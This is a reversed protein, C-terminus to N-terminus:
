KNDWINKPDGYAYPTNGGWAEKASLSEAHGDCFLLNVQPDHVFPNMIRYTDSGSSYMTNNTYPRPYGLQWHGHSKRTFSQLPASGANQNIETNDGALVTGSPMPVYSGMVEGDIAAFIGYCWSGDSSNSPCKTLSTDNYYTKLKAWQTRADGVNPNVAGDWGQVIRDENDNQYMICALGIQKLNGICNIQRAKARARSLAPLLMSALIAIIAIVVLLEILTFRGIAVLRTKM